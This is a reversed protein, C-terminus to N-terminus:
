GIPLAVSPKRRFVYKSLVDGLNLFNYYDGTASMLAPLSLCFLMSGVLLASVLVVGVDGWLSFGQSLGGRVMGFFLLTIIAGAIRRVIWNLTLLVLLLPGVIIIGFVGLGFLIHSRFGSPLNPVTFTFTAMIALWFLAPILAYFVAKRAEGQQSLQETM